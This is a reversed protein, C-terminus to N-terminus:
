LPWGHPWRGTMEGGGCKGKLSETVCSQNFGGDPEGVEHREGKAAILIAGV